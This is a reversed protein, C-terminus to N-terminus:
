RILMFSGKKEITQRKEDLTFYYRVIYAYTGHSADKGNTKGDWATSGFYVLEGWRDYVWLDFRVDCNSVGSYTSPFQKPNFGTPMRIEPPAEEVRGKGVYLCNNYDRLELHYEGRSLGTALETSQGTEIWNYDNPGILGETIAILEGNDEGPCAAKALRVQVELPPPSGIEFSISVVCGNNDEVDLNYMGIALDGLLLEDNFTQFGSYDIRYPQGGGKMFLRISGDNRGYCSVAEVELSKVQFLEPESIVVADIIQKCGKGDSVVVGYLGASLEDAIPGNLTPDHGWEFTYPGEGGIIALEITGSSEGFCAINTVNANALQGEVDVTIKPSVGSCFHSGSNYVIYGLEAEIDPQNWIVEIQNSGQGSVIEGGNIEWEYELGSIPIEVFYLHSFEPDYCVEEPGVPRPANIDQGIKVELEVPIGPCGNESYPKMILKADPNIGGWRVLVSDRYNELVEGGIAEFETQFINQKGVIHYMVEQLDTCVSTEGVLTANADVVEVELVVEEKEDCTYPGTSAIINIVYQGPETFTHNVQEGEKSISGDGFDWVFYAFKPDSSKIRWTGEQNLCATSSEEVEFEYESETGNNLIDGDSGLAYGYSEGPGFGYAYAAFGETNVLRHEGMSVSVTAIQFSADGLLPSFFEGINNGDLVTNNETGTKVMINLFHNTISPLQFSNFTLRKLYEGVPHYTIMFPDGIGSTYPISANKCYGGKSFVTVSAPKSTEIKSSEDKGFELTLFEGSNITGKLIGNVSVSTDDESALVKVLEGPTRGKLGMHVFSKGWSSYPYTQQFIHDCALCGGVDSCKNGGFVAIKGCGVVNDEIVRIRTGTLDEISKIQYSQGRDLQIISPVGAQNGSMSNVATTIEIKTNDTTAVILLTSSVGVHSTVYYDKGLTKIPLIVTADATRSMDNFAHVAINGTANIYVGKDEVVGSTRHILDLDASNIRIIHQQGENLSFTTSHGLYEIAGTAKEDATIIIVAYNPRSETPATNEMFGVWFERGITSNQGWTVRASSVLLLLLIM